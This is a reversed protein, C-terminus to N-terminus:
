PLHDGGGFMGSGHYPTVGKFCVVVMTTPWDEGFVPLSGIGKLCVVVRSHPWEGESDM